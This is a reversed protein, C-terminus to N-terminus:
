SRIASTSSTSWRLAHSPLARRSCISTTRFYCRRWSPWASFRSGNAADSNARSARTDAATRCRDDWTTSPWAAAAAGCDALGANANPRRAYADADNGWADHADNATWPRSWTSAGDPHGWSSPWNSAHRSTRSDDRADRDSTIPAADAAASAASDFKDFSGNAGWRTIACIGWRCSWTAGACSRIFTDATHHADGSTSSRVVTDSASTRRLNTWRDSRAAGECDVGSDASFCWCSSRSTGHGTANSDM